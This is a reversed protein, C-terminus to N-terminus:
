HGVRWLNGVGEDLGPAFVANVYCFVGEHPALRLRRRLFSVVFSFRQASGCAFVPARLAATNPLPSLRM